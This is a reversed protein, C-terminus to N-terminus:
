AAEKLAARTLREVLLDAIPEWRALAQCASAGTTTDQSCFDFSGHIRHCPFCALGQPEVVATNPWDRTLNQHSSHSLTIVKFIQEEFAVANAILSETAVVADAELALSLAARVPLQMGIVNGYPPVDQLDMGATNGLVVSYIGAEALRQMLAQAYPWAKTPGSGGPNIVVLPGAFNARAKQAWAKEEPSPYFKQLHQTGKWKLGAYFHVADLYNDAALVDRVAHPQYFTTDQVHFLSRGEVAGILNVWKDYKAAEHGWFQLLDEDSMVGNPLLILRDINPDHKLIEAGTHACYVTVHYGQGKLHAIPSSAWLADGYAGIRVIGVSKEPRPPNSVDQQGHGAAEKRFVLLFSYEFGQDRTQNELLTYDPAILAMLDIVDQPVFDHKHDPNSGPQGINPYLDRHPLYLILHGGVRLLRWWEKLAAVPDVMHELLHSSFIASQQGDAWMPLRAADHIIMDPKMPIGFLETDKGSDLGMMHPWVKKPGCGIDLGGQALYPIVEFRIKDSEFGQPADPYWTM